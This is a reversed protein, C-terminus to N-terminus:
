TAPVPDIAWGDDTRVVLGGGPGGWHTGIVLTEGDAYRELFSTRTEIAQAPDTDFMSSLSVDAIGNGNPYRKVLGSIKLSVGDM